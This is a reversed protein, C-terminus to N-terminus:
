ATEQYEIEHWNRNRCRECMVATRKRWAGVTVVVYCSDDKDSNVTDECRECREISM